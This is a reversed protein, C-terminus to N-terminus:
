GKKSLEWHKLQTLNRVSQTMGFWNLSMAKLMQLSLQQGKCVNGMSVSSKTMALAVTPMFVHRDSLSLQKAKQNLVQNEKRIENIHVTHFRREPDSSLQLLKKHLHGSSCCTVSANNVLLKQKIDL